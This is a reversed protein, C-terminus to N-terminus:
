PEYRTRRAPYFTVIRIEDGAEVFVVRLWHRDSIAKQAIPPDVEVYVYEPDLVTDLVQERTVVFGVQALDEFKQEAHRTFRIPKSSM